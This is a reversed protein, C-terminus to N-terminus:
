ADLKRILDEIADDHNAHGDIWVIDPSYIGLQQPDGPTHTYVALVKLPRASDRRHVLKDKLRLQARVWTPQAAGFVLVLASCELISNQLDEQINEPSGDFVPLYASRKRQIIKSALQQAIPLDNQVSDVFIFSNGPPVQTTGEEKRRRREEEKRREEGIIRVSESKFENMGTMLLEPAKFLRSDRHQEMVARDLDPRCWLLPTLKAALAADYQHEAYGEPLDAPRREAFPGLLQIFHSARACDAKVAAAFEAGGGPYSGQPVVGINFQELHSRLQERELELDPTVQALLVTAIPKEVVPSRTPVERMSVMKTRINEAQTAILQVYLNKDLERDVTVAVGGESRRHWFPKRILERLAPPYHSESDLPLADIAFVRKDDANRAFANLEETTWNRKVYSPTVVPVFIASNYARTKLEELQENGQLAKEDFFVDPEEGLRQTLARKLDEGFRTVWREDGANDFHAYSIFVDHEFQSLFGM